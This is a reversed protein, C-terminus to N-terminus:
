TKATMTKATIGKIMGLKGSLSSVSNNDADMVIVIVSVGKEGYPLGLRGIIFDAYNHLLANVEGVVNRDSVIINIISLRKDM